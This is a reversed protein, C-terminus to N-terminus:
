FYFGERLKSYKIRKELPLQLQLDKTIGRGKKGSRNDLIMLRPWALCVNQRPLLNELPGSCEDSGCCFSSVIQALPLSAVQHPYLLGLPLTTPRTCPLAPPMIHDALDGSYVHTLRFLSRNSTSYLDFCLINIIISAQNRVTLYLHKVHLFPPFFLSLGQHEM